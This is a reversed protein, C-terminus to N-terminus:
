RVFDKGAEDCRLEVRVVIVVVVVVVIVVVVVVVAVVAVVVVVVSAYTIEDIEHIMKIGHMKLCAEVGAKQAPKINRFVM